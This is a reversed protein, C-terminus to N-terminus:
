RNNDVMQVRSRSSRTGRKGVPDFYSKLRFSLLTHSTLMVLRLHNLASALRATVSLVDPAVVPHALMRNVGPFGLVAPHVHQVVQPLFQHLNAGRWRSTCQASDMPGFVVRKNSRMM